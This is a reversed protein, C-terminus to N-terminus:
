ISCPVNDREKNRMEREKKREKRRNKHLIFVSHLSVKVDHVSFVSKM